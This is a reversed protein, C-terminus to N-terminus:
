MRSSKLRQRAAQNIRSREEECATSWAAIEALTRGCGLCVRDSGIACVKICPSRSDAPDNPSSPPPPTSHVTHVPPHQNSHMRNSQLRIPLLREVLGDNRRHWSAGLTAIQNPQDNDAAPIPAPAVDDSPDIGPAGLHEV